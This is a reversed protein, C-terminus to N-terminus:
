DSVNNGQDLLHFPLNYHLNRNFLPNNENHYTKFKILLSVINYFIKSM